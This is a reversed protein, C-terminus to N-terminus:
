HKGDKIELYKILVDLQDSTIKISDLMSWDLVKEYRENVKNIDQETIHEDGRARFRKLHIEKESAILVIIFEIGANKLDKLGLDFRSYWEDGFADYDRKLGSYVLESPFWRNLIVYDYLKNTHILKILEVMGKYRNKLISSEDENKPKFNNKITISNRLSKALRESLYDKGVCDCGEIILVKM